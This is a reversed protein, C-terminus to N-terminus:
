ETYNALAVTLYGLSGYDMSTVQSYVKMYIKYGARCYFFDALSLGTRCDYGQGYGAMSGYITSTDIFSDNSNDVQIELRILPTSKNIAGFSSWCSAYYLGTVPCTYKYSSTNFVPVGNFLDNRKTSNLIATTLTNATTNTSGSAKAVYKFFPLDAISAKNTINNQTFPFVAGSLPIANTLQSITVDAM